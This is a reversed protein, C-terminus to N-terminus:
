CREYRSGPLRRVVKRMELLMLPTTLQGVGLALQQAMEDVSRAGGALFDWIRRQAEDLGPPPGAAAAIAREEAQVRASVGDIEELVDEAGRCLVAGQRLLAHCGGSSEADIPGPVALVTRGQEAAHSATHLAGSQAAAEVIVVAQCLGSIIRNRPPFLGALPEQGMCSETLLAGAAVVEEALGKHEPPYIRSLGGALVALTRGGARLAARHALGDIGRALGSVVTVGAQVLGTALREAVRKGYATCRRSGVLAVARADAPLVTGRVFLLRPAGPINTLAAPYDAQGHVLLRAGGALIREVESAEDITRLSSALSESLQPGIGPVQLLEGQSARRARAASGFHEVLAAIRVAGLGDALHLALLDRVDAPITDSM